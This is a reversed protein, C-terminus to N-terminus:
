IEIGLEQLIFGYAEAKERLHEFRGSKGGHGADMNIKLILAADNTTNDRLKAVWKAPEWYTVRPDSIGATVMLPPYAQSTVQDYPSYALINSFAEADEIPNGWENWEMPTLPLTADSITNLVDVFPVHAVAAGFLDPAQNIVAGILLGGASGGEIAIKGKETIEEDILFLACDEFDNFTNQKQGSKGNLYWNYGQESGGRIHAVAYVMGRDVLSFANASFGSPISYGYSGYGYLYAPVAGDIDKRRLVTLPIKAGDRAAVFYREVAYAGPDHGSPVEQVKRLTRDGTELNLDYTTSPTSPSSYTFRITQDDHKGSSATAGLAFALQDFEIFTENGSELHRIVLHPLAKRRELRILYKSTSFISLILRGEEHPIICEWSSPNPTEVPARCIEFDISNGGQNTLIYFWDGVHTLSYEHGPKRKAVLQPFSGPKKANILHLESTIHDGTQIVVFDGSETKSLDVYFGPDKEEYVIQDANTATGLIHRVVRFPRHSEDFQLYFISGGTADWVASAGANILQDPLFSKSVMDYFRLTFQESGRTDEGIIILKDSPDPVALGLSYYSVDKAAFNQDWVLEHLSPDSVPARKLLPYQQGERFEYWYAFNVNTMPLTNDRQKVRGKLEEFLVNKIDESKSWYSGFFNNEAVLHSRIEISLASPDDMVEQWNEARMWDYEDHWSQGHARHVLLKKRAKPIMLPMSASM